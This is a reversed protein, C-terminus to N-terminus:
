PIERFCSRQLYGASGANYPWTRYATNIGRFVRTGMITGRMTSEQCITQEHLTALICLQEAESLELFLTSVGGAFCYLMHPDTQENILM